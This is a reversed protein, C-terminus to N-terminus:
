PPRHVIGRAWARALQVANFYGVSREFRDVRRMGPGWGGGPRVDIGWRGAFDWWFPYEFEPPPEGPLDTPWQTYPPDNRFRNVFRFFSGSPDDVRRGDSLITGPAPGDAPGAIPGTGDGEPTDVEADPAGESEVFRDNHLGALVSALFLLLALLNLPFPLILGLLLWPEGPFDDAGADHEDLRTDPAAGSGAGPSGSSYNNRQDNPPAFLLSHGGKGVFIRPHDGDHPVQIWPRCDDLSSQVTRSRSLAVAVPASEDVDFSPRNFGVPPSTPTGAFFLTVAEWQGEASGESTAIGSLDRLAFLFFYNIALLKEMSLRDVPGAFDRQPGLAAAKASDDDFRPYIGAWEAEAYVTPMVPQQVWLLPRNDLEEFTGWDNNSDMAASLESFAWELYQKDGKMYDNSWGGFTLFLGMAANGPRYAPEAIADPGSSGLVIPVGSDNPAGGKKDFPFTGTPAPPSKPELIATGRHHVGGPGEARVGREGIEEWPALSVHSLWSEALIPFHKEGSSFYLSPQFRIALDRLLRPTVDTM